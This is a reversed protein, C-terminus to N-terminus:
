LIEVPILLKEIRDVIREIQSLRISITFQCDMEMKQSVLDLNEEKIIRMILNMKPYECRVKINKTVIKTIIKAEELAEKASAKYATILGGAGLLTGGFYRVVVILIDSLDFSLIQGLIPKGATSSPEGDDNARFIKKEAGLRYAYCHHRADHYKKKVEQLAEKVDEESRVPYAYALFKSGKEKYISTSIEAITKYTDETM